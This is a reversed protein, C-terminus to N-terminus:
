NRGVGNEIGSGAEYEQMPQMFDDEEPLVPPEEPAKSASLERFLGKKAVEFLTREANLRAVRSLPNEDTTCKSELEGNIENIRHDVIRLKELTYEPSKKALQRFRGTAISWSVVSMLVGSVFVKWPDTDILGNQIISLPVIIIFVFSITINLTVLKWNNGAKQKVWSQLAKEVYIDVSNKDTNM